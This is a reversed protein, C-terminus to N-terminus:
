GAIINHNTANQIILGILYGITIFSFFGCSVMLCQRERSPHRQEARHLPIDEPNERNMTIATHPLQRPQREPGVNPQRPTPATTMFPLQLADVPSPANSLDQTANLATISIITFILLRRM